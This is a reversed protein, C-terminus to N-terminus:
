QRTGDVGVFVAVIVTILGGAARLNLDPDPDTCVSRNVPNSIGVIHRRRKEQRCIPGDPPPAEPRINSIAAGGDEAGIDDKTNLSNGVLHSGTFM